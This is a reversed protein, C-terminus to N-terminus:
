VAFAELVSVESETSYNNQRRFGSQQLLKAHEKETRIRGGKFTVLSIRM